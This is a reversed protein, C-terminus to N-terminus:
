LIAAMFVAYHLRARNLKQTSECSLSPCLCHSLLCSKPCIGNQSEEWFSLFVNSFVNKEYVSEELLFEKLVEFKGLLIPLSNHEPNYPSMIVPTGLLNLPM